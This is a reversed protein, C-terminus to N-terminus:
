AYKPPAGDVVRSLKKREAEIAVNPIHVRSNNGSALAKKVRAGTAANSHRTVTSIEEEKVASNRHELSSRREISRRLAAASSLAVSSLIIIDRAIGPSETAGHLIGSARMM